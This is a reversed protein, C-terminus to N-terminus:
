ISGCYATQSVNCTQSVDIEGMGRSFPKSTSVIFINRILRDPSVKLKIVIVAETNALKLNFKTNYMAIYLLYIFIIYLFYSFMFCLM